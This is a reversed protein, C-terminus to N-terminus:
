LVLRAKAEKVCLSAEKTQEKSPAGDVTLQVYYKYGNEYAKRVLRVILIKRSIMDRDYDTRTDYLYVKLPKAKAKQNSLYLYYGKEDQKLLIGSKGNSALSNLEGPRKYKM